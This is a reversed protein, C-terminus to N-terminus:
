RYALPLRVTSITEELAERHTEYNEVRSRIGFRILTGHNAFVRLDLIREVGDEDRSLAEIKVADCGALETPSVKPTGIMEAKRRFVPDQGVQEVIKRVGKESLKECTMGHRAESRELM